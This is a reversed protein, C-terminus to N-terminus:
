DTPVGISRWFAREVMLRAGRRRRWNATLGLVDADAAVLVDCRRVPTGVVVLGHERALAAAQEVTVPRGDITSIIPECFHVRTGAALPTAALGTSRAEGSDILAAVDGADIRLLDAVVMLDRREEPTVIGDELAHAVHDMMFMGGIWAQRAESLGLGDALQGLARVEDPTVQRDELVQGLARAWARDDDTIEEHGAAGPHARAIRGATPVMDAMVVSGAAARTMVLWLGICVLGTGVWVRATPVEGLLPWATLVGVIPVLLFWASVTAAGGHMLALYFFAFPLTTGVVAIFLILAIQRPGTAGADHEFALSMIALAPGGLLMQWGAIALPSGDRGILRAGIVTGVAWSIAGLVVLVSVWSIDPPWLPGQWAVVIAGALGLGIGLWQGRRLVEGLVIVALVAVFLPDTNQLVSTLGAGDYKIGIYSIGYLIVSQTLALAGIALWSCGPAISKGTAVLVALLILGAIGVRAGASLLPPWDEMLWASPVYALGWGVSAAIGLAAIVM